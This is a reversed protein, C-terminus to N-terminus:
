MLILAFDAYSQQPSKQMERFIRQYTYSNFQYAKLLAEKVKIYSSSYQSPMALLVQLSKGKLQSQLILLKNDDTWWQSEAIKDFM